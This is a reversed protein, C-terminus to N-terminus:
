QPGALSVESHTCFSYNELWENRQGPRRHSSEFVLAINSTPFAARFKKWDLNDSSSKEHRRLIDGKL